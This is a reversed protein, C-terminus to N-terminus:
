LDALEELLEVDEDIELEEKVPEPIEEEIEEEHEYKEELEAEFTRGSSAGKRYIAYLGILIVGGILFATSMRPNKVENLLCVMGSCETTFEFSPRQWYDEHYPQSVGMPVVEFDIEVMDNSTLDEPATLDLTFSESEFAGVKLNVFKTTDQSSETRMGGDWGSPLSVTIIMPLQVNNNNEVKFEISKKENPLFSTRESVLRVDINGEVVEEKIQIVVPLDFYDADSETTDSDIVRMYITHNGAQTLENSTISYTVTAHEGKSLRLVNVDTGNSDTISVDWTAYAPDEDTNSKLASPKVVHWNKTGSDEKSSDTVRLQFSVKEGPSVPGVQGLNGSDSDGIVEVLIGFTRHVRFSITSKNESGGISSVEITIPGSDVEDRSEPLHVDMRLGTQQHSGVDGTLYDLGSKELLESTANDYFEYQWATPFEVVKMRFQDTDFGTNFVDIYFSGYQDSQDIYHALDPDYIDPRNSDAIQKQHEVDEFASVRPAAFVGVEEVSIVVSRVDVEIVQSSDDNEAVARAIVEITDPATSLDSNPVDITLIPRAFDGGGQLNYGEPSDWVPESWSPPLARGLEFTVDIESSSSGVHELLFEVSSQRGPAILLTDPQNAPLTLHIAHELFTLGQHLYLVSHGQQDIIELTLPYEGADFGADYTWTFNGVLGNNDLKLDDDEFEQDFISSVGNPSELILRVSRIDDRGFADRVDVSFQIQRNEPRQNPAWELAEPNTWMEGPKHVRVSSDALANAKLEIRSFSDTSDIDGFAMEVDCDNNGGGQGCTAQADVKLRIQKGKPITFGTSPVDFNIENPTWSCSGGFPPIGPNCSDDLSSQETAITSEGAQLTYTIDATSGEQGTFKLFVSLRVKDSSSGRGYASLDSIMEASRFEVGGIVSSEEHSGDPEITTISGDGGQGSIPSDLYLEYEYLQAVAENTETSDSLNSEISITPLSLALMMMSLILIARSKM